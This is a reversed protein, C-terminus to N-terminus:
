PVWSAITALTKCSLEVLMEDWYHTVRWSLSFLGFIKFKSRLPTSPLVPLETWLYSVFFAVSIRVFIIIAWSYDKLITSCLKTLKSKFGSLGFFSLMDSTKALPSEQMLSCFISVQFPHRLINLPNTYGSTVELWATPYMHRVAMM